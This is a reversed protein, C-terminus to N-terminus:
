QRKIIIRCSTDSFSLKLGLGCHQARHEIIASFLRTYEEYSFKPVASGRKLVELAALIPCFVEAEDYDARRVECESGYLNSEMIVFYFAFQAAGELFPLCADMAVKYGPGDFFFHAAKEQGFNEKLYFYVRTMFNLEIEATMFRRKEDPIEYIDMYPLEPVSYLPFRIGEIHSIKWLGNEKNLTFVFLNRAPNIYLEVKAKGTKLFKLHGIEMPFPAKYLSYVEALSEYFRKFFPYFEETTIRSALGLDGKEIGEKFQRLTEKVMQEEQLSSPTQASSLRFSVLSICLLISFRIFPIKITENMIFEM